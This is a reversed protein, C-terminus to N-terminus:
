KKDTNKDTIRDARREPIGKPPPTDFDPIIDGCPHAPPTELKKRRNAREIPRVTTGIRQVAQVLKEIVEQHSILGELQNQRDTKCEAIEKEAASLRDKLAQKESDFRMKDRAAWLAILATAITGVVMPWGDGGDAILASMTGVIALSSTVAITSTM